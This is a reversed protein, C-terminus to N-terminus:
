RFLEFENLDYTYNYLPSTPHFGIAAYISAYKKSLDVAKKSDIFNTGCTIM